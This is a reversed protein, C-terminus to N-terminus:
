VSWADFGEVDVELGLGRIDGGFGTDRVIGHQSRNLLRPLRHIAPLRIPLSHSNLVPIPSIQSRLAQISGLQVSVLRTTPRFIISPYQLELYVQCVPERAEQLLVIICACHIRKCKMMLFHVEYKKKFIIYIQNPM